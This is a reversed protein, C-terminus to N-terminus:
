PSELTPLALELAACLALLDSPLPARLTRLPPPAHPLSLQWAHLAHREHRVCPPSRHLQEGLVPHGIHALHLRAQHTRGTHLTVEVLSADAGCSIPSITSRSPKGRPTVAAMQRGGRAVRGLPADVTRPAEVRGHVVALYRKTGARLWGAAEAVLAKRLVFLNVGSTQQDLQHAAWVKSRRRRVMLLAQLCWPDALSRGTSPLGPPKDCVVVGDHEVLVPDPLASTPGPDPLSRAM